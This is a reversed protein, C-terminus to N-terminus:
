KAWAEPHTHRGHQLGFANRKRGKRAMDRNNEALTGVFLHEPNVCALPPSNKALVLPATPYTM